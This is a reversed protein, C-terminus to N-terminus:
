QRVFLSHLLPRSNCVSMCESVYMQCVAPSKTVVYVMSHIANHLYYLNRCVCCYVNSDRWAAAAASTSESRGHDFVTLSM